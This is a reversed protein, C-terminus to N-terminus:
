VDVNHMYFINLTDLLYEFTMDHYSTYNNYDTGVYKSHMSYQQSLVDVYGSFSKNPKHLILYGFWLLNLNNNM